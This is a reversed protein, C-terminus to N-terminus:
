PVILSVDRVFVRRLLPESTDTGATLRFGVKNRGQVWPLDGAPLEYQYTQNAGPDIIGGAVAASIRSYRPYGLDGAANIRIRPILQDNLTFEFEDNPGVNDILFRLAGHQVVVPDDVIWVVACKRWWMSRLELGMTGETSVNPDLSYRYHHPGRAVQEPDRLIEFWRNQLADFMNMTSLGDAGKRYYLHAAARLMDLDARHEALGMPHAFAPHVGPLLRCPTGEVMPKWLEVPLNCDVHNTRSPMLYDVYGRQIWAEVDHGHALGDNPRALVQLALPIRDRGKRAAVEDLMARIEGLWDTLLDTCQFVRDEHFLKAYRVFSIQLADTDYKETLERFISLMFQRVEPLEYNFMTRYAGEDLFWDPHQEHIRTPYTAAANIRIGAWFQLGLRHSADALEQPLDLGAERLQRMNREGAAHVETPDGFESEYSTMPGGCLDWAVADIGQNAYHGVVDAVAARDIPRQWRHSTFVGMDDTLIITAPEMVGGKWFHTLDDTVYQTQPDVAASGLAWPM